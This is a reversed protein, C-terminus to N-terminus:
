LKCKNGSINSHKLAFLMFNNCCFLLRIGTNPNKNLLHLTLVEASLFCTTLLIKNPDRKNKSLHVDLIFLLVTIFKIPTGLWHFYHLSYFRKGHIWKLLLWMMKSLKLSEISKIGLIVLVENNLSHIDSLRSM